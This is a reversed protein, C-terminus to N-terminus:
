ERPTANWFIEFHLLLVLMQQGVCALISLFITAKRQYKGNKLRRITLDAFLSPWSYLLYELVVTKKAPMNLSALVLVKNSELPCM